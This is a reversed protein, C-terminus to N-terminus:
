GALIDEFFSIGARLLMALLSLAIFGLVILIIPKQLRRLRSKGLLIPRAADSEPESREMEVDMGGQIGDEEGVEEDPVDLYRGCHPCDQVTGRQQGPFESIRGCEECRASVPGTAAKKMLLSSLSQQHQAILARARDSDVQQIVWVEIGRSSVGTWATLGELGGHTLTDMVQAPVDEHELWNVVVAAQAADNAVFVCRPARSIMPTNWYVREALPQRLSRRGGSGEATEIELRAVMEGFGTRGLPSPSAVRGSRRAPWAVM